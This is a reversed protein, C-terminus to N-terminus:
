VQVTPRYSTSPLLFDPPHLDAKNQKCCWGTAFHHPSVPAWPAKVTAVTGLNFTNQGPSTYRSTMLTLAARLSGPAPRTRATIRGRKVYLVKVGLSQELLYKRLFLPGGSPVQSLHSLFLSVSLLVHGVRSGGTWQFKETLWDKILAFYFLYKTGQLVSEQRSFNDPDRRTADAYTQSL